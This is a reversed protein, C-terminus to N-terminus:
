NKNEDNYCLENGERMDLAVAYADEYTKYEQLFVDKQHLSNLHAEINKFLSVVKYSKEFIFIDTNSENEDSNTTLLYVIGYPRECAINLTIWRQLAKSTKFKLKEIDTESMWQDISAYHLNIM